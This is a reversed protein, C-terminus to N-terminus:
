IELNIGFSFSRMLPYGDNIDRKEPDLGSFGTITFLNDTSFYLRIQGMKIKKLWADPLNYGIQLNKLRLYALNELYFTSNKNSAASGIRPLGGDRNEVSWTNNWQQETIAQRGEGDLTSQNNVTRYFAWRGAAGQFMLALDFGRWQFTSNLAFNTTPRDTQVRPYAKMDEDSILGDGNLDQYLVDGPQAGQPTTKYIESWTQAIGLSQYAYLYSYPMDLFLLNATSNEDAMNRGLYQNWKELRTQNYSVNANITYSFDGHTDRWTVNAEVGRNRLDGVNTRPTDYAGTLHISMDFPRNMGTTLRDYYDLEATLRNNLFGLDLGVNFVSTEEWTLNSNVM